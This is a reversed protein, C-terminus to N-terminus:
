TSIKPLSPIGAMPTDPAATAVRIALIISITSIRPYTYLFLSGTAQPRLSKNPQLLSNTLRNKPVDAGTMALSNMHPRPVVMYERAYPRMPSSATAAM